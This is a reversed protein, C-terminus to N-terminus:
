NAFVLSHLRQKIGLDYFTFTIIRLMYKTQQICTSDYNNDVKPISPIQVYAFLSKIHNLIIIFNYLVECIVFKM